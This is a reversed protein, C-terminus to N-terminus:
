SRVAPCFECGLGDCVPCSPLPALNVLVVRVCDAPAYRVRRGERAFYCVSDEIMGAYVGIPEPSDCEMDFVVRVSEPASTNRTENPM